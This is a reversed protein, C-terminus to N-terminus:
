ARELRLRLDYRDARYLSRVYEIPRGHQDRTRRETVLGCAGPAVALTRSAAGDLRTVLVRQEATTPRADWREELLRYLSDGALDADVLGGFRAAPLHATEVAMPEEDATRVREVRVVPAGPTLELSTAVPRAAAVVRQQRVRAGGRLGRARMDQTFSTLSQWQTTRPTAAFTGAGHVRYALGRVVLDDLAQRATMRAVGYRDCLLRESPLPAGPELDALLEELMEGIQVAKPRGSALRPPLRDALLRSRARTM